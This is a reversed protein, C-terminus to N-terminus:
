LDSLIFDFVGDKFPYLQGCSLCRYGEKSGILSSHCRICRITKEFPLDTLKPTQGSKHADCFIWPAWEFYAMLGAIAVGPPLEKGLDGLKGAIKDIVGTGKETYRDFGSEKLLDHVYHPHHMFFVEWVWSTEYRFPNYPNKGILWRAIRELNKKNCYSILLNGGDTLIRSLESVAAKSDPLHHFVRVMLVQDFIADIFPTQLISSRICIIHGSSRQYAQQLLSASSDLLIIEECQSQYCDLLRGYGCGLDILRKAPLHLMRKVLIQELEDLKKQQVGLWFSRYDANEYLEYEKTNEGVNLHVM